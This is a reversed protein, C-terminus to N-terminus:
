ADGVNDGSVSRSLVDEFPDAEVHLFAPGVADDPRVPGALRGQQLYDAAQESRPFSGHVEVAFVNGSERGVLNEPSAQTEHRLILTQERVHAHEFVQAHAAEDQTVLSRYVPADVLDVLCKGDESFLGGFRGPRKGASLLLGQCEAPGQHKAGLEDHEVLGRQAERRLDRLCIKWLM